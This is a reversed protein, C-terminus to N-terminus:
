GLDGSANAAGDKLVDRIVNILHEADPPKDLVVTAGAYLAGKATGKDRSATLLIIPLHHDRRGLSKLLETGDIGPLRVDLLLCAQGAPHFHKLFDEASAFAQFAFGEAELLVSLSDRVADDDDVVYVVAENEKEM